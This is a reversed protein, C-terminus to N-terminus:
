ALLERAWSRFTQGEPAPEGNTFRELFARCEELRRVARPAVGEMGNTADAEIAHELDRLDEIIKEM